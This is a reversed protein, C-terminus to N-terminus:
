SRLRPRSRPASRRQPLRSPTSNRRLRTRPQGPRYQTNRINYAPPLIFSHFPAWIRDVLLPILATHQADPRVCARVCPRVAKSAKETAAAHQRRLEALAESHKDRLEQAAAEGSQSSATAKAEAAAIADGHQKLQRKVEAAHEEAQRNASDKAVQSTM